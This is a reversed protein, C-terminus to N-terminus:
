NPPTDTMEFELQGGDMIQRHTIFTQELKEDNLTVSKVYTNGPAANKKVIVFSNVGPLDIEIREFL